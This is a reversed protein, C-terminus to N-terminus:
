VQPANEYAGSLTLHMIYKNTYSHKNKVWM